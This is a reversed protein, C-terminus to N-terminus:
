PLGAHPVRVRCTLIRARHDARAQEEAFTPAACLFLTRGDDGGLACAFVGFDGTAVEEAIAGGALVRLVRHGLADAAWVAGEADLAIGDPAAVAGALEALLDDSQPPDGFAAWVRRQELSGDETVDFATLRQAMTEAVILTREDPTLVMGNPFLLDAAVVHVSGDPDVRLLTTPRIPAFAMLDFGFNGVYARGRSDVVMDNLHWDAHGSLDAYPTLTGERDRRLLRRDRMSAILLSGDPLWGLGSPQQPVDAV